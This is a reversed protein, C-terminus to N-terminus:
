DEAIVLYKVSYEGREQFEEDFVKEVTENTGLRNIVRLYGSFFVGKGPWDNHVQDWQYREGPKVIVKEDFADRYQNVWHYHAVVDQSRHNMVEASTYVDLYYWDDDYSCSGLSMGLFAIVILVATKM